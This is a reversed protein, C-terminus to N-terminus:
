WGLQAMVDDVDDLDDFLFDPAEAALRERSWSGTAVAITRAGFARGCAIDHGTDGIVDIEAGAFEIGHKETARQQAIAGLQNRDRHDDAFAGFEFHEWLGYRQLKLEAGRQMNGTLLAVVRDPNQKLRRLLENVGPMVHGQLGPLLQGLFSLYQDLFAVINEEIQPVDYKRLISAIIRTDTRGAIEIDHLGDRVGFREQVARKLAQDGAGGTTILTADIDWLLLRKM